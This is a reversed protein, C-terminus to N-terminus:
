AEAKNSHMTPTLMAGPPNSPINRHHQNKGRESIKHRDKSIRCHNKNNCKKQTRTKLHRHGLTKRNGITIQTFNIVIGNARAKNNRAAAAAAAAAATQHSLMSYDLLWLVSIGPSRVLGYAIAPLSNMRHWLTM